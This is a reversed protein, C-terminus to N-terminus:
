GSSVSCLRKPDRASSGDDFSSLADSIESLKGFEVGLVCCCRVGWCGFDLKWGFWRGSFCVRGVRGVGRCTVGGDDDLRASLDLAGDIKITPSLM